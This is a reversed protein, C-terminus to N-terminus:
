VKKGIYLVGRENINIWLDIMQVYKLALISMICVYFDHKYLNVCIMDYVYVQKVCKIVYIRLAGVSSLMCVCSSNVLFM